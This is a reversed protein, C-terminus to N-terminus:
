QPSLQIIEALQDSIQKLDSYHTQNNISVIIQYDELMPDIMMEVEESANNIKQAIDDYTQQNLKILLTHNHQKKLEADILDLINQELLQKNLKELYYNLFFTIVKQYENMQVDHAKTFEKKLSIIDNYHSTSLEKRYAEKETELKKAYEQQIEARLTKIQSELKQQYLAEQEQKISSIAEEIKQANHNNQVYDFSKLFNRQM